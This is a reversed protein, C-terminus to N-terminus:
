FGFVRLFPNIGLPAPGLVVLITWVRALPTPWRHPNLQTEAAVFVGQIVFYSGMSLAARWGLPVVALWAHMAASALFAGFLGAIPHWRRALPVFVFQRLWESVFRNWRKGWFEHSSRALIPDQQNPPAGVGAAHQGFQTMTSSLALLSYLLLVGCAFRIPAHWPGTLKGLKALLMLSMGCAASELLIDGLLRGSIVRAIPRVSKESSISLLRGLRNWITRVGAEPAFEMTKLFALLAIFALVVRLLPQQPALWPLAAGLVLFLAAAARRSARVGASLAAAVALGLQAAIWTAAVADGARHKASSGFATLYELM